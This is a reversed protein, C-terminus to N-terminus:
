LSPLLLEFTVLESPENPLLHAHQWLYREGRRIQMIDSDRRGFKVLPILAALTCIVRDHEYKILSGWSGDPDQHATIWSLASPFRTKHPDELSSLAAVWATDYATSAISKVPDVISLPAATM